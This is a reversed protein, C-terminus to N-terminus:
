RVHSAAPQRRDLKGQDEEGMPSRSYGAPLEFLEPRAPLRKHGQYVRTRGDWYRIALPLGRGYEIGPAHMDLALACPQRQDLPTDLWVAAQRAALARRFDALLATEHMLMPASKFEACLVDNLRIQVLVGADSAMEDQTLRWGKPWVDAPKGASKDFGARSVRQDGPSVHWIERTSRDFLVFGQDDRGFDLRMREGLVLIRSVMSPQESERDTFRLETMMQDLRHALKLKLPVTAAALVPPLCMLACALVLKCGARV